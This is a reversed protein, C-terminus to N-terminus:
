ENKKVYEEISKRLAATDRAFKLAPYTRVYTIYANGAYGYSQTDPGVTHPGDYEIRPAIVKLAAEVERRNQVANLVLPILQETFRPNDYRLESHKPWDPPVYSGSKLKGFKKEVLDSVVLGLDDTNDM